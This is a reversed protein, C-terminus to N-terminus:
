YSGKYKTTTHVQLSECFGKNKTQSSPVTVVPRTGTVSRSTWAKQRAAKCRFGTHTGLTVELQALKGSGQGPWSPGQVEVGLRQMAAQSRQRSRSKLNLNGKRDCTVFKNNCACLLRGLASTSAAGPRCAHQSTGRTSSHRPTGTLSGTGPGRSSGAMPCPLPLPPVALRLRRTAIHSV